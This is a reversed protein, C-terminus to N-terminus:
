GRHVILIEENKDAEAFIGFLLRLMMLQPLLGM